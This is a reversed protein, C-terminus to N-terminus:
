ASIVAFIIFMYVASSIMSAIMTFLVFEKQGLGDDEVWNYQFINILLHINFIPILSVLCTFFLREFESIIIDTVSQEREDSKDDSDRIDTRIDLHLAENKREIELEISKSEPNSEYYYEYGYRSIFKEFESKKDPYIKADLTQSFKKDPFKTIRYYVKVTETNYEWDIVEGQLTKNEEDNQTISWWDHFDIESTHIKAKKEQQKQAM